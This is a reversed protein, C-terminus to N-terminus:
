FFSIKALADACMNAKPYYFHCVKMKYDMQRLRRINQILRMGSVNGKKNNRLNGVAIQSGVNLEIRRYRFVGWLFFIWELCTSKHHTHQVSCCVCWLLV